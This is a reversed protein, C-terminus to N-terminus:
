LPFEPNATPKAFLTNAGLWELYANHGDTIPLAIVEPVKAPHKEKIYQTLEFILGARTKIVLLFEPDKHLTGEWQYYSTIHPIINVCAALKSEVLGQAMADAIKADPVTVFVVRFLMPDIPSM